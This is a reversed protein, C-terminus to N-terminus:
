DWWIWASVVAGRGHDEPGAESGVAYAPQSATIGAYGGIYAPQADTLM